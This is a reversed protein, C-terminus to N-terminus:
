SSIPNKILAAVRLCEEKEAPTAYTFSEEKLDLVKSADEPSQTIEAIRTQALINETDGGVSLEFFEQAERYQKQLYFTEGIVYYALAKRSGDTDAFALVTAADQLAETHKGLRLFCLARGAVAAYNLRNLNVAKTFTDCSKQLDGKLYNNWALSRMRESKREEATMVKPLEEPATTNLPYFVEKLSLATGTTIATCAAKTSLYMLPLGSITTVLGCMFLTQSSPIYNKSKSSFVELASSISPCSNPIYQRPDFNQVSSKISSCFNQFSVAM